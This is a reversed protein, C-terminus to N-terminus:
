KIPLIHEIIKLTVMFKLDQIHSNIVYRNLKNTSYNSAAVIKAKTTELWASKWKVQWPTKKKKVNRDGRHLCRYWFCIISSNHSRMYLDSKKKKKKCCDKLILPFLNKKRRGFIKACTWCFTLKMLFHSSTKLPLRLCVASGLCSSFYGDTNMNALLSRWCGTFM